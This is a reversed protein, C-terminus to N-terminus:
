DKKKQRADSASQDRAGIHREWLDPRRLRTIAESEAKRWAKVKAHDGSRLVEPIVRGEWV